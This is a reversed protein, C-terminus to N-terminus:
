RLPPASCGWGDLSRGSSCGLWGIWRPLARTTLIAVAYLPVVVGPSASQSHDVQNCHRPVETEERWYKGTTIMLPKVAIKNM